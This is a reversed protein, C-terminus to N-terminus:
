DRFARLHWDRAVAALVERAVKLGGDVSLHVGDQQRLSAQYTTMPADVVAWADVHEVRPSREAAEAEYIENLAAKRKNFWGIGMRPMGAWYVKEVGNKLYLDMVKGVRGAYMKKWSSTGSKLGKGGAVVNQGDNAGLM